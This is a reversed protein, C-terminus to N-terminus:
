QEVVKVMGANARCEADIKEKLMPINIVFRSGSYFGPCEGNKIMTRLKRESCIGLIAARKPSLFDNNNTNRM